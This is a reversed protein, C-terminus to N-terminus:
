ATRPSPSTAGNARRGDAGGATRDPVHLVNNILHPLSEDLNQRVAAVVSTLAAEGLKKAEQGAMSMLEDVWGPTQWSSAREPERPQPAPGAMPPATVPSNARAYTPSGMLGLGSLVSSASSRGRFVLLGTLFGAAAAGGVMMWPNEQVQSRIDLTHMVGESVSSVSGEVTDKVGEVTDKVSAVTDQVASKVSEVTDHVASTASQITGVVQQELAAVKDTLSQRTQHMQQEILEPSESDM